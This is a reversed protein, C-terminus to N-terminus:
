FSQQSARGEFNRIREKREEFLAEFAATADERFTLRVVRIIM